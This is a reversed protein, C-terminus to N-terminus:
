PDKLFHRLSMLYNFGQAFIHKESLQVFHLIGVVTVVKYHAGQLTICLYHLLHLLLIEDLIGNQPIVHVNM